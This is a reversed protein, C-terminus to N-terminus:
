TGFKKNTKINQLTYNYREFPWTRWSHVPGFLILLKGLHLSLHHTPQIKAEKYLQVLGVLYSQMHFMYDSADRKSTTRMNAIHIATILHM